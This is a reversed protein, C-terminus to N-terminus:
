SCSLGPQEQRAMLRVGPLGVEGKDEWSAGPGGEGLCTLNRSVQPQWGGGVTSEVKEKGKLAKDKNKNSNNSKASSVLAPVTVVRLAKLLSHPEGSTKIKARGSGQQDSLELATLHSTCKM